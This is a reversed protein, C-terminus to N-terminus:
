DLGHGRGLGARGQGTWKRFFWRLIIRWEIGLDELHDRKDLNGRWFGNPLMSFLCMMNLQDNQTVMKDKRIKAGFIGLSSSRGITGSGCGLGLTGSSGTVLKGVTGVPIIDNVSNYCINKNYPCLKLHFRV